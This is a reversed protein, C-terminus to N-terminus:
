NRPEIPITFYFTSGKQLESEAWIRGGHLEVLSKALALGLGTGPTRDTGQRSVRYFPEFVRELDEQPIGRGNDSVAFKISSNEQSIIARIAAGSPTYKVANSVINTLVQELRRADAMLQPLGPQVEVELCLNKLHSFPTTMEVVPYIIAEPSTLTKNLAM